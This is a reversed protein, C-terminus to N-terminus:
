IFSYAFYITYFFTNGYKDLEEPVLNMLSKRISSSFTNTKTKRRSSIWQVSHQVLRPFAERFQLWIPVNEECIRAVIVVAPVPELSLMAFSLQFYRELAPYCKFPDLLQVLRNHVFFANWLRRALVHRHEQVWVEMEYHRLKTRDSPTYRSEACVLIPPTNNRFLSKSCGKM